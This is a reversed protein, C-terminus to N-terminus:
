NTEYYVGEDCFGNEKKSQEHLRCCRYEPYKLDEEAYRCDKCRVVPVADTTLADIVILATELYAAIAGEAREKFLTEDKWDCAALYRQKLQEKLEDGDILRM